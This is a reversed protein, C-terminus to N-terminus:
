RDRYKGSVSPLVVLTENESGKEGVKKFTGKKFSGKLKSQNKVTM